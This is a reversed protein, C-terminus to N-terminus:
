AGIVCVTKRAERSERNAWAIRQQRPHKEGSRGGPFFLRGEFALKESAWTVSLATCWAEGVCVIEFLM